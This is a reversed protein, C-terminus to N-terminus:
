SEKFYKYAKKFKGIKEEDLKVSNTNKFNSVGEYPMDIKYYLKRLKKIIKQYYIEPTECFKEYKLVLKNENKFNKLQSKIKKYTFYVQGAIQHYIDMDKLWRYEKPKAGLWINIDNFYKIRAFYISQMNFLPKRRIHLLLSREMNTIVNSLNYQLMFLKTVFPKNTTETISNLGYKIGEFDVKLEQEESLYEPDFNDMYNRFFHQFENVALAGKSKGLISKFNISSQIDYFDNNFDYEKNFLMTQVLAGVYPSYAFRTLFNSPYSFVGLSALWQLLITTGSRPCGVIFLFPYNMKKFRKEIKQQLPKLVEILDALLNDLKKNKKFEKAKKNENELFISEKM